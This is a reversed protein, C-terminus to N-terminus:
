KALIEFLFNHTELIDSVHEKTRCSFVEFLMMCYMRFHDELFLISRLSFESVHNYQIVSLVKDRYDIRETQRIKNVLGRPFGASSVRQHFRKHERLPILLQFYVPIEGRGKRKAMDLPIFGTM